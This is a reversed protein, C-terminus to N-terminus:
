DGEPTDLYGVLDGASVATVGDDHQVGPIDTGPPLVVLFCPNGDAVHARATDIAEPPISDPRTVKAHNWVYGTIEDFDGPNVTLKGQEGREIARIETIGGDDLHVTDGIQFDDAPIHLEAM